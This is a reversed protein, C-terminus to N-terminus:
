LMVGEENNENLEDTQRQQADAVPVQKSEYHSGSAVVGQAVLALNLM